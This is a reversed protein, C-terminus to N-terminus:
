SVLTHAKAEEFLARRRLEASTPYLFGEIADGALGM